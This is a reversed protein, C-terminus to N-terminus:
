VNEESEKETLEVTQLGETDVADDQKASTDSDSDSDSHGSLHNDENSAIDVINMYRTSGFTRIREKHRFMLFVCLM